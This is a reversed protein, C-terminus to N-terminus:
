VVNGSHEERHCNACLLNCKEIEELYKELSSHLLSSPNGEKTGDPHHWELAAACRNYGCKDCGRELKLKNSYNLLLDYRQKNRVKRNSNSPMCEYCFIRNSGGSGKQSLEFEKNCNLCKM